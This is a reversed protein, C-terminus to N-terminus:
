SASGKKAKRRKPPAKLGMIEALRTSPDMAGLLLRDGKRTLEYVCTITEKADFSVLASGTGVDIARPFARIGRKILDCLVDTLFQSPNAPKWSVDLFAVNVRPLLEITDASM